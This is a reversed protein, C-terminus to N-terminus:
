HLGSRLMIPSLLTTLPAFLLVSCFLFSSFPLLLRKICSTCWRMDDICDGCVCM